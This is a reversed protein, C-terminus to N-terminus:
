VHENQNILILTITITIAIIIIIIIHINIIPSPLLVPGASSVYIYTSDASGGDGHTDAM